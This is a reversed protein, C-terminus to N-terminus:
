MTLKISVSGLLVLSCFILLNCCCIGVQCVLSGDIVRANGYPIIRLEVIDILGNNFFPNLYNVIFQACYPCLAESYLEVKVKEVGTGVCQPSEVECCL